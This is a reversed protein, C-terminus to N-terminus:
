EAYYKKLFVIMLLIILNDTLRKIGAAGDFQIILRSLLVMIEKFNVMERHNNEQLSKRTNKRTHDSSYSDSWNLGIMHFDANKNTLIAVGSAYEEWRFFNICPSYRKENRNQDKKNYCVILM